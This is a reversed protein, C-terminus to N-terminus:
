KIYQRSIDSSTSENSMSEIYADVLEENINSEGRTNAITPEDTSVVKTDTETNGEDEKEKSKTNEQEKLKQKHKELLKEIKERNEEFLKKRTKNDKECSINKYIESIEEKLPSLGILCLITYTAPFVKYLGFITAIVAPISLLATFGLKDLFEKVIVKLSTKKESNIKSCWYNEEYIYGQLVNYINETYYRCELLSDTRLKLKEGDIKLKTYEGM